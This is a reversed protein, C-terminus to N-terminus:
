ISIRQLARFPEITPIDLSMAEYAEGFAGGWLHIGDVGAKM